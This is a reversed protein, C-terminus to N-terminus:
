QAPAKAMPRPGGVTTGAAKAMRDAKASDERMAQGQQTMNWHEASFPNNAFGGGGGSGNAGGGTSVPWWHPRRDQMEALWVDPAVGPTVGVGDKTLVSGDEHIEFVREGLMLVDEMATDIVKIGTAATRVSDSISRNTENTKFTANEEGFADREETVKALDRQIPAVQTAVHANALKDVAENFKDQDFEGGMGAEVKARLETLETQDAAMQETDVGDFTKLKTKTEKHDNREKVLSAQVRDVDTQTKIGTVGTLEWKGDRETFLDVYQEPIDEKTDYIANLAM